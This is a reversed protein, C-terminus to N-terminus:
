QHKTQTYTYANNRALNVRIKSIFINEEIIKNMM